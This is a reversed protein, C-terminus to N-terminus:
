GILSSYKDLADKAIRDWNFNDKIANVANKSKEKLLDKEIVAQKIASAISESETKCAWGINNEKVFQALTTGETVVCPLGYSMAELIGMPMGEFRSTQIFYDADLLVKSKEQGIIAFNLEVIDQVKYFAIAAKVKDFWKQHNPGYIYLKCSKDRLFDGVMSVASLLLDIGKHYMDLRGIYVFKLGKDSFQEKIESPVTIGNTAILKVNKFRTSDEESKSLFQIATAKRIFKNFLIINAIKKKFWKKRQAGASLEGHPIIIYPINKKNLVKAIKLYKLRYVEHFVVLTPKDFPKPFAELNFPENFEFQNSMGDIKCDAINLFGVEANNQQAHVHQPVVVCVGNCPNNLIHAIHLLVM